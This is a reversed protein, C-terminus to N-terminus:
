KWRLRTLTGSTIDDKEDADWKGFECGMVLSLLNKALSMACLAIRLEIIPHYDRKRVKGDPSTSSRASQRIQVTSVTTGARIQKIAKTPHGRRKKSVKAPQVMTKGSMASSQAIRIASERQYKVNARRKNDSKKKQEQNSCEKAMQKQSLRKTRSGGVKLNKTQQYQRQKGGGTKASTKQKSFKERQQQPKKASSCENQRRWQQQQSQGRGSRSAASDEQRQMKSETDKSIETNGAQQIQIEGNKSNASNAKKGNGIKSNKQAQRQQLPRKKNTRIASAAIQRKGKQEGYNTRFNTAQQFQKEKKNSIESTDWKGDTPNAQTGNAMQSTEHADWKGDTPNAQTASSNSMKHRHQQDQNDERATGMAQSIARGYAETNTTSTSSSVEYNDGYQGDIDDVGGQRPYQSYQDDDGDVGTMDSLTM